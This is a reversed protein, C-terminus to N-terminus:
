LEIEMGAVDLLGPINERDFEVLFDIDSQPGFDQRLYSGFIALKTIHHRRCFAKIFGKPIQPKESNM